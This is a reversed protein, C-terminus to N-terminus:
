ARSTALLQANVRAQVAQDEMGSVQLYHVANEGLSLGKEELMVEALASTAVCLLVIVLAICKKISPNM